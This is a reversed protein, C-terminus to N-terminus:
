ERPSSAAMTLKSIGGSELRYRSDCQSLTSMRHSIMILTKIDKLGEVSKMVEAETAWDLSSTAEDLVLVEPNHYLARAIGIRQKQGGSLRVGREGVVTNLGDSLGFIWDDLQALKAATELAAYDIMDTPVGLAINKTLTDDILYINQPVYGIQSQWGRMYEQIDKGDVLISGSQPTILGLLLDILTSKGSGSTGYLGIFQGKAIRLSLNSIAPSTVGEYSFTVNNFEINHKFNLAPFTRSKRQADVKLQLEDYITNAVPLGFRLMQCSGLIRNACPMLRVAAAGFLSLTTLIVEPSDGSSLSVFVLIVLSIVSFFEIWLGPISLFAAQKQSVLASAYVEGSFQKQFEQERGLLKVEKISGLAQQLHQIRRREHYQRQQGWTLIRRKMLLLFASVVVALLFIVLLTGLPEIFLLLACLGVAVLSETILLLMPMVVNGTWISLEGSANRILQASNRALHFKYPQYVYTEFLREAFKAQLGFVFVSRKWSLYSLLSSKVAYVSVMMLLVFFIPQVTASEPFMDKIWLLSSPLKEFPDASVLFMIVPIVLSVGVMELLMGVFM